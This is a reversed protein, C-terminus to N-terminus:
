VLGGPAFSANAVSVDAGPVFDVTTTSAAAVTTTTSRRRTSTHVDGNSQSDNASLPSAFSFTEDDVGLGSVLGEPTESPGYAHLDALAADLHASTVLAGYGIAAAFTREMRNLESLTLGSVKAFDANKLVADHHAKAAVLLAALFLRHLMHSTLPLQTMESFRLMLVVAVLGTADDFTSVRRCLNAHIDALPIAPLDRSHFYTLPEFDVADFRKVHQRATASLRPHASAVHYRLYENTNTSALRLVAALSGELREADANTNPALLAPPRVAPNCTAPAATM